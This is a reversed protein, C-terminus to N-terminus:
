RCNLAKLRELLEPSSEGLSLRQLIRACEASNASETRARERKGADPRQSSHDPAPEHPPAAARRPPAAAKAAPTPPAEEVPEVSSAASAESPPKTAEADVAPSTPAAAPV